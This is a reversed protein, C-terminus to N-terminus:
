LLWLMAAANTITQSLHEGNQWVWGAVTSFGACPYCITETAVFQFHRDRLPDARRLSLLTFLRPM